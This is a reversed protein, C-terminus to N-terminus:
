ENGLVVFVSEIEKYNVLAKVEFKQFVDSEKSIKNGITGILLGKPLFGDLGSSIVSEGFKVNKEPPIMDLILGVGHDGRVVGGVRSEQTLIFVSSASDTLILVQSSNDNVESIKGVLFGGGFIVGQNKIVGDRRGRDILFYQGFNSPDFGVLNAKTLKSKLPPAIQLQARLIKNEQAAELLDSMKLTLEENAQRLQNNEQVLGKLSLMAKALSVVRSSALTFPRAVVATVNLFASKPKNLWGIFNLFILLIIAAILGALVYFKSNNRRIMKFKKILIRNKDGCWGTGSRPALGPFVVPM